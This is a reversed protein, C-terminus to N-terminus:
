KFDFFLTANAPGEWNGVDEATGQFSVRGDPWHPTPAPPPRQQGQRPPAGPPAQAEVSVAATLALSLSLVVPTTVRMPQRKIRPSRLRHARSAAWPPPAM